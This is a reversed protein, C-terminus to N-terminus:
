GNMSLKLKRLEWLFRDAMRFEGATGIIDLLDQVLPRNREVYAHPLLYLGLHRLLEARDIPAPLEYMVDNMIPFQALWQEVTAPKMVESLLASYLGFKEARMAAEMRQSKGEDHVLFNSLIHESTRVKSQGNRLLYRFWLDMDMAYHLAPNLGGMEKVASTRYFHSPQGMSCRALTHEVTTQLNTGGVTLVEDAANVHACRGIVVDVDGTMREAVTQLAGDRLVDDANLWNFIDGDALALGKNVAHSQGEDTASEWYSLRDGHKAIIDQTGDTSGGDMIIHLVDVGQAAVSLICREIYAAGNLVPTIITFRPM